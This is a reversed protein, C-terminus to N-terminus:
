LRTVRRSGFSPWLAHAHLGIWARHRGLLRLPHPREQQAGPRILAGSLLGEHGRDTIRVARGTRSREVWGLDFLRSALAAGLAGGLHHRQESWDVCYRILPRRSPVSDLDVGLEHLRRTGLETLRYDVDVGPASLRDDGSSGPDFTGDGGTLLKREIMSAMLATGLM